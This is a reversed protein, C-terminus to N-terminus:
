KWPLWPARRPRRSRRPPIDKAVRRPAARTRDRPSQPRQKHNQLMSRLRVVLGVFFLGIVGAEVADPVQVAFHDFVMLNFWLPAIVGLVPEIMRLSGRLVARFCEM